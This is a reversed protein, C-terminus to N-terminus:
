YVKFDFLFLNLLNLWGSVQAPADRYVLTLGSIDTLDYGAEQLQQTSIKVIEAGNFTDGVVEVKYTHVKIFKTTDSFDNLSALEEKTLTVGKKLLYIPAETGVTGRCQIDLAFSIGNYNSVDKILPNKITIAHSVNASDTNNAFVYKERYNKYYSTDAGLTIDFKTEMDAIADGDATGSSNTLFRNSDVEGSAVKEATYFQINDLYIDATGTPNNQAGGILEQFYLTFLWDGNTVVFNQWIGLEIVGLSRGTSNTIPLAKSITSTTNVVVKIDVSYGVYGDPIIIAWDNYGTIDNDHIKISKTSEEGCLGVADTNQSFVSHTPSGGWIYQIRSIDDGDGLQVRINASVVDSHKFMGEECVRIYVIQEQVNQLGTFVDGKQWEVAGEFKYEYLTEDTVSVRVENATESAFSFAEVDPISTYYLEIPESAAMTATEAFRVRVTVRAGYGCVFTNEPSYVGDNFSIETGEESIVTLVGEEFTCSANEPKKAMDKVPLEWRAYLTLESNIETGLFDFEQEKWNGEADKEYWGVFVYGDRKPASPEQAIDGVLVNQTFPVSEEYGLQFTVAVQPATPKSCAAGLGLTFMCGLMLAIVIKRKHQKNKM